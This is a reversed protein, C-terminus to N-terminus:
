SQWAIASKIKDNKALADIVTKIDCIRQNQMGSIKFFNPMHYTTLYFEMLNKAVETRSLDQLQTAGPKVYRVYKDETMYTWISMEHKIWACLQDLNQTKQSLIKICFDEESTTEPIDSQEDLMSFMDIEDIESNTMKEM